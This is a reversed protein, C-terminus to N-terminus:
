IPVLSILPLAHVIISSCVGEVVDLVGYGLLSEGLVGNHAVETVVAGGLSHGVLIISPLRTWGMKQKTLYIANVLDQSLSTLDM